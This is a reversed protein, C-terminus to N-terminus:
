DGSTSTILAAIYPPSPAACATDPSCTEATITPQYATRVVDGTVRYRYVVGDVTADWECLLDSTLLWDEHRAPEPLRRWATQILTPASRIQM